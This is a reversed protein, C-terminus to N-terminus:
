QVIQFSSLLHSKQPHHEMLSPLCLTMVGHHVKYLLYVHPLPRTTCIIGALYYRQMKMPFMAQANSTTRNLVMWVRCVLVTCVEKSRSLSSSSSYLFYCIRVRRTTIINHYPALNALSGNILAEKTSKVRNSRNIINHSKLNCARM